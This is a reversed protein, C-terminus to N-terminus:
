LTVEPYAVTAASNATHKLSIHLAECELASVAECFRGLQMETYRRDPEDSCAFHTWLGELEVNPTRDLLQATALTGVTGQGLRGMGTDVKLHVRARQGAAARIVAEASASDVVSLTIGQAILEDLGKHVPTFILIRGSVGGRRLSLAEGATAVGFWTVGLTELHRAVALAGHGYADAKVPALLGTEPRLRSRLTAVNHALAKLSVTAHPVGSLM